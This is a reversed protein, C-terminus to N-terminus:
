LGVLKIEKVDVAAMVIDPLALSRASPRPGADGVRQSAVGVIVHGRELDVRGRTEEDFITPVPAHNIGLGAIARSTQHGM